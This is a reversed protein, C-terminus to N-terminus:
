FETRPATEAGKGLATLMIPKGQRLYLRAVRQSLGTLIENQITGAQEALDLVSTTENGQKGIIVVEDEMSVGPIHSVDVIVQDMCVRGLVPARQGRILVSGCNSFVRPYGDGYGIPALAARLSRDTISTRGYSISSGPKLDRVRVVRSKLSLAPRLDFPAPWETSPPLGYLALGPRVAGFHTEPLAIAASNATHVLPIEFGAQRLDALVQNFVSLQQYVFSRDTEDATAFQTFLGELLLGPLANAAQVFPLVEEPLLGNRSMGTDVKVHYPARIGALRAQEALERAFELSIVSPTLRAEVALRAGDVPTYGMVLIPAQLGAKRLELGEITRHVALREAGARVAAQAVPVAGHGYANAKVVAFVEVSEGVFRKMSQVNYEIADLDIEAWTVVGELM